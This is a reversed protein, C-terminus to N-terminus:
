PRDRRYRWISGAEPNEVIDFRKFGTKELVRQSPILDPLTQAFITKAGKEFARHCLIDVASSALGRRQQEPVVSYGVEVCGENDPPGKYGAIGALAYDADLRALIYWSFWGEADPSEQLSDRVWRRTEEGNFLPPWSKPPNVNLRRALEKGSVEEADLLAESAAVLQVRENALKLTTM